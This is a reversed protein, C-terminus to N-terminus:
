FRIAFAPLINHNQHTPMMEHLSTHAIRRDGMRKSFLAPQDAQLIALQPQKESGRSCGIPRMSTALGSPWCRHAGWYRDSPVEIPGFTDTETRTAKRSRAM